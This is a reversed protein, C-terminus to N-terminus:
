REHLRRDAPLDSTRSLRPPRLGPSPLRLALVPGAPSCPASSPWARDPSSSRPSGTARPHAPLRCAPPRRRAGLPPTPLGPPRTDHARGSRPHEDPRLWPTGPARTRGPRSGAKPLCRARVPRGSGIRSGASSSGTASFGRRPQRGRDSRNAGRRSRRARDGLGRRARGVRLRRRRSRSSLRAARGGLRPGAIQLGSLAAPGSMHDVGHCRQGLIGLDRRLELEEGVQQSSSPASGNRTTAYRRPRPACARCEPEM